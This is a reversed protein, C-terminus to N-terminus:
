YNSSHLRKEIMELVSKLRKFLLFALLFNGGCHLLDFKIGSLFYSFAYTPSAIFLYILSCLAGFALGFLGSFLAWGWAPKIWRFLYTLVALLPWIYLYSLWWTGFGYSIGQLLVFIGLAGFVKRGFVLTFLITLLSVLEINPLFAIVEKSIHLIVGMVAIATMSRLKEKM